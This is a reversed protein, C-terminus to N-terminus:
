CCSTFGHRWLRSGPVFARKLVLQAPETQPDVLEGGVLTMMQVRQGVDDFLLMPTQVSPLPLGM